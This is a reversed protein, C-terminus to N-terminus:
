CIFFVIKHEVSMFYGEPIQTASQLKLKYLELRIHELWGPEQLLLGKMKGVSVHRPGDQKNLGKIGNQM